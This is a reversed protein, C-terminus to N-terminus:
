QNTSLPKSTMSKSVPSCFTSRLTTPIPDSAYLTPHLAKHTSILSSPFLPVSYSHRAGEWGDAEAQTAKLAAVVSFFALEL